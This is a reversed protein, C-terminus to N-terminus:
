QKTYTGGVGVSSSLTLVTKDENFSYSIDSYVSYGNRKLSFTTDDYTYKYDTEGWYVTYEDKFYFYDMEDKGPELEKYTNGAFPNTNEVVPEEAAESESDTGTSDDATDSEASSDETDETGIAETDETGSAETETTTEDEVTDNGGSCAPFAFLLFLSALILFLKKM